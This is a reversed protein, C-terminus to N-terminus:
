DYSHLFLLCYSYTWGERQVVGVDSWWGMEATCWLIIVMWVVMSCAVPCTSNTNDAYNRAYLSIDHTSHYERYVHFLLNITHMRLTPQIQAHNWDGQVYFICKAIVTHSISFYWCLLFHGLCHVNRYSNVHWHLNPLHYCYALWSM